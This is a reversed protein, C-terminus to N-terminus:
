AYAPAMKRVHAVCEVVADVLADVEEITNSRGMSVRISSRAQEKTLGIATLVHSPESKGSSCASGASIAFGKLDLAILLPEADIGDFRINSTNPTRPAGAGNVYSDAIRDLVAREFRDRLVAERSAEAAGEDMMLQAARGMAVAGAVNETGARRKHEHSGGHLMPALNVSKRIYLAGIGKPAYIKHGSISYLDVGLERVNVPIKGATQIGDSHMVVGAQRAIAAIETIPQIVGLENSAHMVSIIKTDPRIAARLEDLDVVGNRDVGVYTVSRLEGCARLVAPHEVTTTIAHGNRAIGFLALNDSETGGSTFVVEDASKAGLLAAIQRRADDLKHRASQGFYHISSANGYVDTLLPMMAELAEPCVPTTANHDFYYRNVDTFLKLLM